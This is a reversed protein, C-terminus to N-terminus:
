GNAPAELARLTAFFAEPPSPGLPRKKPTTPIFLLAGNEAWGRM